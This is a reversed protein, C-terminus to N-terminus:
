TEHGQERTEVIVSSSGGGCTITYKTEGLIGSVAQTGQQTPGISRNLGGGTLVCSTNGNLNWTLTSGGGIDIVRPNASLTPPPYTGVTTSRIAIGNCVLTFTTDAAIPNTTRNSGSTGTWSESVPIGGDPSEVHCTLGSTSGSVAWTIQSTSSAQVTQPNATITGLVCRNVDPVLQSPATCQWECKPGSPISCGTVLTSSQDSSLGADDGACLTADAFTGLCQGAENSDTANSCSSDSPYDTQGDADNDTGDSCEPLIVTFPYWPGANDADNTEDVLGNRDVVMRYCHTGNELANRAINVSPNPSRTAGAAMQSWSSGAQRVVDAVAATCATTDNWDIEVDAYIIQGAATPGTGINQATGRFTIGTPNTFVQNNTPAVNTITLNATTGPPPPCGVNTSVVTTSALVTGKTPSQGDRLVFTSGNAVWVGTEASYTGPGMYAFNGADDAWVTANSPGPIFWRVTTSGLTAGNCLQVPDATIWAAAPAVVTVTCSAPTAVPQSILGQKNQTWGYVTYTGATGYGPITFTQATGSPVYTAPTPNPQPMWDTAALPSGNYDIGYRISNNNSDTGTLTVQFSTGTNVTGAPCTMTPKSPPVDVESTDTPDYTDNRFCGPDSADSVTDEPDANDIGDNCQQVAATVTFSEVSSLVVPGTCGVRYYRTGEPQTVTRSGTQSLNTAIVNSNWPGSPSTSWALTCSNSTFNAGTWQLNTSGVGSVPDATTTDPNVVLTLTPTATPTCVGGSLTYGPDCKFECKVPTTCTDVSSKPTNASLGARDGMCITANAPDTGTCTYAPNTVTVQCSARNSMLGGQDKSWGYITYTGAAAFGGTKTLSEAAPVNRLTGWSANNVDGTGNWDVGFQIQNGDPDTGNLTIQINQGPNITGVPCTVTPTTPPNNGTEVALPYAVSKAPIPVQTGSDPNNQPDYTYSPGSVATMKMPINNGYCGPGGVGMGSMDRNDYYRYYFVGYTSSFNFSPTVTTGGAATVTCEAQIEGLPSVSLAGCSLGSTNTLTRAPPNVMFPAYVKYTENSGGNEFTLKYDNVFDKSDCTVKGSVRAPAAANVSWDGYPSDMSYGTGFWFVNDSTYSGFKFILQQGPAVTSNKSILQGTNKDIVSFDYGVSITPSTIATVYGNIYSDVQAGTLNPSGDAFWRNWAYWFTGNAQLTVKESSSRVSGGGADNDGSVTVIADADQDYSQMESVVVDEQSGYSGGGSYPDEFDEIARLALASSGGLLLAAVAAVAVPGRVALQKIHTTAARFMNPTQVVTGTPMRMGGEGAQTGNPPRRLIYLAMLGICILLLAALLLRHMSSFWGCGHPLVDCTYKATVEDILVDGLYLKATVTFNNSSYSMPVSVASVDGPVTGEWTTQGVTGGSLIRALFGLPESSIEVRVHDTPKSGTSHLCAFLRSEGEVGPYASAGLFALRPLDVTDANTDVYRVTLFSHAASAEQPILEGVLYYVTRAADNITYRIEASEGTSINVPTESETILNAPNTADWSYLRWHVTGAFAADTTNTVVASVPVEATFMDGKIPFAAAHYAKGQVTTQTVDFRVAGTAGGTVSFNLLNSVIDNTFTLGDLNFRDHTTVFTALQYSGSQANAPVEWEYTLPLSEGPRLTINNAIVVQDVVDPGFSSKESSNKYYLKGYVTVAELPYQNENTVTGKFHAITGPAFTLSDTYMVAPVSGFRYYAFCSELGNSGAGAKPMEPSEALPMEISRVSQGARNNTEVGTEPEQAQVLGTSTGLLLVGLVVPYFRQLIRIM